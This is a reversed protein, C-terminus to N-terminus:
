LEGRDIWAASARLAAVVQPVSWDPELNTWTNYVNLAPITSTYEELLLASYRLVAAVREYETM